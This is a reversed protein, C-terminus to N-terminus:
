LAALDASAALIRTIANARAAAVAPAESPHNNDAGVEFWQGGSTYGATTCVGASSFKAQPETTNIPVQPEHWNPAKLEAPVTVEPPATVFKLDGNEDYYAWNQAHPLNGTPISRSFPEGKTPIGMFDSAMTKSRRRSIRRQKM